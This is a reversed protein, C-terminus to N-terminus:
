EVEIEARAPKYECKLNGAHGVSVSNCGVAGIEHDTLVGAHCDADVVCRLFRLHSHFIALPIIEHQPCGSTQYIRSYFRVHSQMMDVSSRRV